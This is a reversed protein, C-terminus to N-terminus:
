SAPSLSWSKEPTSEESTTVREVKRHEPTGSSPLPSLEFAEGRKRQSERLNPLFWNLYYPKNVKEEFAQNRWINTGPINVVDDTIGQMQRAFLRKMYVYVQKRMMMGHRTRFSCATRYLQIWDIIAVSFRDTALGFDIVYLKGIENIKLGIENTSLQYAINGWHFDGHTVGFKRMKALLELVMLFLKDVQGQMQIDNLSEYSEKDRLVDKLVGDLREMEFALRPVRGGNLELLPSILAPALAYKNAFVFQMRMEELMVSKPMRSSIKIATIRGGKDAQVVQGQAGGGIINTISHNAFYANSNRLFSTLVECLKNGIRKATESIEEKSEPEKVLPILDSKLELANILNNYKEITIACYVVSVQFAPQLSM